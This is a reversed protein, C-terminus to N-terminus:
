GVLFDKSEQELTKFCDQLTAEVQGWTVGLRHLSKAWQLLINEIKVLLKIVLAQFKNTDGHYLTDIAKDERINHLTDHFVKALSGECDAEKSFNNAFKKSDFYQTEASKSLDKSPVTRIVALQAEHMFTDIHEQDKQETEKTDMAWAAGCSASLVCAVIISKLFKM